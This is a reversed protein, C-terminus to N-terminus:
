FTKLSVLTSQLRLVQLSTFLGLLSFTYIFLYFLMFTFGYLGGSALALLFFGNNNIMSYTLLRKIRKQFLGGISGFVLSLVAAFIIINIVASTDWLFSLKLLIALLAIKPVVALFYM